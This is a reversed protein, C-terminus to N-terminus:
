QSSVFSMRIVKEPCEIVGFVILVSLHSWDLVVGNQSQVCFGSQDHVLPSGIQEVQGVSQCDVPMVVQPDGVDCHM